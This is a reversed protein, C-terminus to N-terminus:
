CFGRSCSTRRERGGKRELREGEGREEGEREKYNKNIQQTAVLAAAVVAVVAFGADDDVVEDGAEEAEPPVEM